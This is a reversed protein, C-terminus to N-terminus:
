IDGESETQQSYQPICTSMDQSGNSLINAKVLSYGTDNKLETPRQWWTLQHWLKTQWIYKTDIAMCDEFKMCLDAIIFTWGRVNIKLNLSWIDVPKCIYINRVSLFLELLM